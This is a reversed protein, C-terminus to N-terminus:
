QFKGSLAGTKTKLVRELRVVSGYEAKALDQKKQEYARIMRLSVGSKESLERQTLGMRERAEKLRNHKSSYELIIEEAVDFFKEPDAEHLPHYMQIIRSFPLGFRSIGEFTRGSKWQYFALVWGAWYEQSKELSFGYDVQPFLGGGSREIVIEAIEHGSHGVLYNPNGIEIQHAVESTLFRYYFMDAPIHYFNIGIDFMEALNVMVYPLYSEDYPQMNM